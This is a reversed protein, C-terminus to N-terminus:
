SVCPPIEDRWIVGLDILCRELAKASQFHHGVFGNREAAIINELRDDIFIAEGSSLRFRASALQYINDDPKVMKETGSVVIDEFRDFVDANQHRFPGWFEDSFNTIAFLPIGKDALAHVLDIMGAVPGTVTENFREGWAMILDRHQPYEAILETSTDAFLRGADHQFHWDMTVVDRMFLDLAQNGPILRQYFTRPCWHYLVNGVDFVVAKVPM